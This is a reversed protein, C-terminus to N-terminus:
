GTITLIQNAATIPDPSVATVQPTADESYTFQDTDVKHSGSETVVTLDFDHIGSGAATLCVIESSAAFVINILM